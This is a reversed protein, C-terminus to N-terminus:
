IPRIKRQKGKSRCWRFPDSNSAFIVTFGNEIEVWDRLNGIEFSENPVLKAKRKREFQQISVPKFIGIPHQQSFSTSLKNPNNRCRNSQM